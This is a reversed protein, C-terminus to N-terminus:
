GRARLHLCRRRKATVSVRHPREAVEAVIRAISRSVLGSCPHGTPSDHFGRGFQGLNGRVHRLQGGVLDVVKPEHEAVTVAELHESSRLRSADRLHEAIAGRLRVKVASDSRKGVQEAMECRPIREWVSFTNVLVANADSHSSHNAPISLPQALPSNMRLNKASTAGDSDPSSRDSRAPDARLPHRVQSRSGHSCM